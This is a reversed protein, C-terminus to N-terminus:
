FLKLQKRENEIRKAATRCFIEEIEHCIWKIGLRECAVATTGSGAFPDFIVSTSDLKFQEICFVFLNVPKQFPHKKAGSCAINEEGERCIGRWLHRYIRSVGRLNTWAIECDANDDPKVGCRKDWVIWKSNIPLKIACYNGGWIIQQKISNFPKPNFPKDDVTSLNWDKGEPVIGKLTKGRNRGTSNTKINTKNGYM